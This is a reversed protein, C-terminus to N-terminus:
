EPTQLAHQVFTNQYTSGVNINSKSLSPDL